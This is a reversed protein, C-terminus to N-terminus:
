VRRRRRLIRALLAGLALAFVLSLAYGGWNQLSNVLAEFPRVAVDTGRWAVWFGSFTTGVVGSVLIELPPVGTAGLALGVLLACAAFFLMLQLPSLGPWVPFILLFYYVFAIMASLLTVRLGILLRGLAESSSISM